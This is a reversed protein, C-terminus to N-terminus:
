KSQWTSWRSDNPLFVRQICGHLPKWLLRVLSLLAVQTHPVSDMLQFEVSYFPFYLIPFPNLNLYFNFLGASRWCEQKRVVSVVHGAAERGGTKLSLFVLDNCESASSVRGEKTWRQRANIVVTLVAVLTAIEQLKCESVFFFAMWYLYTLILPTGPDCSASLFVLAFPDHTSSGIELCIIYVCLMNM